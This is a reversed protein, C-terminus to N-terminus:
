RSMTSFPITSWTMGDWVVIGHNTVIQKSRVDFTGAVRGSGFDPRRTFKKLEKPVPNRRRFDISYYTYEIQGKAAVEGTAYIGLADRIELVTRFTEHPLAKGALSYQRTGELVRVGDFLRPHSGQATNAHRRKQTVLDFTHLAGNKKWAVVDGARLFKTHNVPVGSRDTVRLKRDFRPKGKHFPVWYVPRLANLVYEQVLLGDPFGAVIAAKKGNLLTEQHRLQGDSKVWDLGGGDSLVVTGDSLVTVVERAHTGTMEFILRSGSRPVIPQLYYRTRVSPVHRMPSGIVQEETWVTWAETVHVLRATEPTRAAVTAQRATRAEAVSCLLLWLLLGGITRMSHAMVCCSRQM